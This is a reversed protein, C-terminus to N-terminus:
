FSYVAGAVANQSSRRGLCSSAISPRPSLAGQLACHQIPPLMQAQAMMLGVDSWATNQVGVAVNVNSQLCRCKRQQRMKCEWSIGTKPEEPRKPFYATHCSCRDPRRHGSSLPVQVTM